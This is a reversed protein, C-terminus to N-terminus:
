LFWVFFCVFVFELLDVCRGALYIWWTVTLDMFIQHHNNNNNITAAPAHKLMLQPSLPPPDFWCTVRTSEWWHSILGLKTIHTKKHMWSRGYVRALSLSNPLAQYVRGRVGLLMFTFRVSHFSCTKINETTNQFHGSFHPIFLRSNRCEALNYMM